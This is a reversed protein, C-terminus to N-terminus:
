GYGQKKMYKKINGPKKKKMNKQAWQDIVFDNYEQTGEAILDQTGFAQGITNLHQSMANAQDGVSVKKGFQQGVFSKKRANLLNNMMVQPDLVEGGGGQIARYIDALNNTYKGQKFKPPIVYGSKKTRSKGYWSKRRTGADSLQMLADVPMDALFQYEAASGGRTLRPLISTPRGQITNALQEEDYKRSFGHNKPLKADAPNYYGGGGGYGSGYGSSYGGGGLNELKNRLNWYTDSAGGGGGGSGGGGGGSFGGPVNPQAADVFNDNQHPVFPLSRWSDNGGYGAADGGSSPYSGGTPVYPMGGMDPMSVSPPAPMAAQLSTPMDMGFSSAEDYIDSLSADLNAEEGSGAVNQPSTHPLLDAAVPGQVAPPSEGSEDTYLTPRAQALKGVVQDVSGNQWGADMPVYINALKSANKAVNPLKAPDVGAQVLWDSLQLLSVNEM